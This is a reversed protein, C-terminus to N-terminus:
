SRLVEAHVSEQCSTWAWRTAAFLTVLLAYFRQATHFFSCSPLRLRPNGTFGCHPFDIGVGDVYMGYIANDVHLRITLDPNLDWESPDNFCKPQLSMLEKMLPTDVYEPAISAEATRLLLSLIM